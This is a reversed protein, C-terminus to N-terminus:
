AAKEADKQDKLERAMTAATRIEGTVEDSGEVRRRFTMEGNDITLWGYVPTSQDRDFGLIDVFAIGSKTRDIIAVTNDLGFEMGSPSARGDIVVSSFRGDRRPNSDWAYYDSQWHLYSRGPYRIYLSDPESNFPNEIRETPEVIGGTAQAIQDPTLESFPRYEVQPQGAEQVVVGPVPIGGREVSTPGAM